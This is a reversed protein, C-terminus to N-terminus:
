HWSVETTIPPVSCEGPRWPRPKAKGRIDLVPQAKAVEEQPQAKKRAFGEPTKAAKSTMWRLEEKLIEMHHSPEAKMVESVIAKKVPQPLQDFNELFLFKISPRINESLLLSLVLKKRIDSRMNGAETLEFFERVFFRPAISGDLLAQLNQRLALTYERRSSIIYTSAHGRVKSIAEPSFASDTILSICKAIMPHKTTEGVVQFVGKILPSKQGLPSLRAAAALAMPSEPDRTAMMSLALPDEMSQLDVHQNMLNEPLLIRAEEGPLCIPEHARYNEKIGLATKLGDHTIGDLHNM